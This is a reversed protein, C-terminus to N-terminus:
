YGLFKLVVSMIKCNQELQERAIQGELRKRHVGTRSLKHIKQKTTSTKEIKRHNDTNNSCLSTFYLIYLM